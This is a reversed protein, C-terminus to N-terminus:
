QKALGAVFWTTTGSKSTMTGVSMATTSEWGVYGAIGVNANNACIATYNTNAMEVPFTVRVNTASIIDRVTVRGGQEVWGSKYKRYWTYSNTADPLQAAVVYDFVSDKFGFLGSIDTHAGAVSQNLSVISNNLEEISNHIAAVDGLNDIEQSINDIASMVVDIRELVVDISERDTFEAYTDVINQMNIKFDRLVELMFNMDQNLITPTLEMTPQYDVSRNLELKRSVCIVTAAKPAKVFSIRGGSFPIDANLGNSVCFLGFGSAPAGDSEVVIDTKSFFPFTFYFDKTKGDGIFTIKNM